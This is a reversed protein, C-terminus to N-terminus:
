LEVGAMRHILVLNIKNLKGEKLSFSPFSQRYMKSLYEAAYAITETESSEESLSPTPPLNLNDLLALLTSCCLFSLM